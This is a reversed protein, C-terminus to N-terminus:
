SAEAGVFDHGVVLEQGARVDITEEARGFRSHEFVVKHTGPLLLLPEARPTLFPAGGDIRVEAWPWAVVRVRAPSPAPAAAPVAAARTPTAAPVEVAATTPKGSAPAGSGPGLSGVVLVLTAVGALIAAATLASRQRPSLHQTHAELQPIPRPATTEDVVALVGRQWLWLAIERRCDASSNTGVFRELRRRVAMASGIRRSPRGHLCARVLWDLRLPIARDRRRPSVYADNRMRDLLTDGAGAESERFPPEGVLMEYLLMGLLFLDSRYDVNEGLIQEPSMYPLSGVMTGPRTLGDGCGELAIGFDAIKVEGGAGVLVNAPKLDRHVVGRAHIEELGRAIELAVLAALRPELKRTRGLVASLDEGNVLEHAIYVSGRVEFCDYVAVVNQHHVSAAARAEREFRKHASADSVFDDRIKKLAVLRDLAPQRALYVVGMGGQGIERLIEYNGVKKPQPPAAPHTPV